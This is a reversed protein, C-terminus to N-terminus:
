VRSLIPALTILMFTPIGIILFWPDSVKFPCKDRVFLLYSLSTDYMKQGRHKGSNLSLGGMDDDWFWALRQPDDEDRDSAQFFPPPTPPRQYGIAM